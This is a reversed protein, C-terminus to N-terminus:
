MTKSDCTSRERDIFIVPSSVDIVESIHLSPHEDLKADFLAV